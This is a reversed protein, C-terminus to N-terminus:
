NQFQAMPLTWLMDLDTVPFRAPIGGCASWFGGRCLVRSGTWVIPLHMCPLTLPTHLTSARLGCLLFATCEKHPKSVHSAAKNGLGELDRFVPTNKESCDRSIGQAELDDQWAWTHSPRGCPPGWCASGFYNLTWGSGTRQYGLRQPRLARSSAQSPTLGLAARQPTRPQYPWVLFHQLCLWFCVCVCCQRAWWMWTQVSFCLGRALISAEEEFKPKSSLLHLIYKSSEFSQCM